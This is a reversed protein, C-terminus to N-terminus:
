ICTDMRDKICDGSFGMVEDLMIICVNMTM